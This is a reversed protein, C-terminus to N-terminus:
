TEDFISAKEYVLCKPLIFIPQEVSNQAKLFNASFDVSIFPIKQSKVYGFTAPLTSTDGFFKESWVFKIKYFLLSMDSRYPTWFFFDTVGM